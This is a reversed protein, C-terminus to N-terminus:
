KSDSSPSAPSKEEKRAAAPVVTHDTIQWFIEPSLGLHELATQCELVPVLEDDDRHVFTYRRGSPRSNYGSGGREFM